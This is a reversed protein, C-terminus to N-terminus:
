VVDACRSWFQQLAGRSRAVAAQGAHLELGGQNAGAQGAGVDEAPEVKDVKHQLGSSFCRNPCTPATTQCDAILLSRRKRECAPSPPLMFFWLASSM